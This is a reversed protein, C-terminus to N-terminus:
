EGRKLKDRFKERFKLVKPEIIAKCYGANMRMQVSLPAKEFNEFYNQHYEEAVTWNKLPSIETVIKNRWIKAKAVEDRVQIALDRDADSTTFIASRYQTGHDPGQANLTTPDHVTFFIRLLDAADVKKPDYVVRVTEAHGTRGLCVEEYTVGAKAGGAYGSESFYVGKLQDFLTEICWFCGGAVYLSKSGPPDIRKEQPETSM